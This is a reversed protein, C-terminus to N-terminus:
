KPKPLLKLIGDAAQEAAKTATAGWKVDLSGQPITNRQSVTGLKRGSPDLINWEISISQQGGAPSGLKVVGAVQYAGPAPNRAAVKIGKAHLQQKIAAALATKGDGPAGIVPPVIAFIANSAPKPAVKQTSGTYQPSKAAIKQKAVKQPKTTKAAAVKPKPTQGSATAQTKSTSSLGRKPLWLAIQLAAKAAIRDIATKDISAWPEKGKEGSVLEEGKIRHVRQGTKDRVDWIYSLKAGKEDPTAVLFGRVTYDRKEAKDKVVALKQQEAASVLASSLAQSVDAPPGFVPAFAIPVSSPKPAVAVTPESGFKGFSPLSFSSGSGCGSLGSAALGTAIILAARMVYRQAMAADVHTM